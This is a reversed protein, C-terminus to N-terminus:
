KEAESIEVLERIYADGDFNPATRKFSDYVNKQEHTLDDYTYTIKKGESGGDDVMSSKQGPPTIDGNNRVGTLNVFRAMKADVVDLVDELPLTDGLRASFNQAMLKLDPDNDFWPNKVKWASLVKEEAEAKEPSAGKPKTEPPIEDALDTMEQEVKKVGDVDGDTIAKEKDVKLEELRREVKAKVIKDKHKNQEEVVLVLDDVKSELQRITEGKTRTVEQANKIYTLPDLFEKEKAKDGMEERTIYGMSKAITLTHENEIQARVESSITEIVPKVPEKEGEAPNQANVGPYDGELKIEINSVASDNTKEEGM